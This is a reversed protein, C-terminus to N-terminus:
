PRIDTFFKDDTLSVPPCGHLCAEATKPMIIHFASGKGPESEVQIQGNHMSVIKRTITLGLGEGSAEDEPNLRHFIEFIKDLHETAMGIGTDQVSYVVSAGDARGRVHIRGVPKDMYKVANEILNTFVQNLHQRDGYCSPLDEKIFEINKQSIQFKLSAEVNSILENMNLSEMRLEDRGVRCFKKLAEILTNLKQASKRIYGLSEELDQLDNQIRTLEQGPLKLFKSKQKMDELSKLIEGSFGQINVLPSKLDHSMVHLVSELQETKATLQRLLCQRDKETQARRRIMKNASDALQRFEVFNLRADTRIETLDDAAKRFFGEFVRFAASFRDAMKREIVFTLVVILILFCAAIFINASLQKILDHQSAEYAMQIDDLYVGAGIYWQWDPFGETYSLKSSPRIGEELDPMVYNLYGGAGQSLEILQQVIRIGNIDRLDLMNRGKAPGSLALGDWQGAFVYGEDGFRIKDIWEVIETQVVADVDAPAICFGAVWPTGPAKRLYALRELEYFANGDPDMAPFYIGEPSLQCQTVMQDVDSDTYMATIDGSDRIQCTHTYYGKRTQTNIALAICHDHPLRSLSLIKFVTSVFSDGNTEATNRLYVDSVVQSARNVKQQIDIHVQQEYRKRATKVYYLVDEVQKKIISKRVDTEKEKLLEAQKNFYHYQQFAWLSGILLFSLVSLMTMNCLFTKSISRSPEKKSM